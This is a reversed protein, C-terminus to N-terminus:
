TLAANASTVSGLSNTIVVAYNGANAPQASVVTYSSATAGSINAANFTWQYALPATGAAVVSFTANQGQNVTQSSPQTTISPPTNVTLAANASTVSGAVNAVVVAYNGANAPQASVVT